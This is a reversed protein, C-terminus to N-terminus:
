MHTILYLFTYKVARIEERESAEKCILQEHFLYDRYKETNYSINKIISNNTVVYVLNLMIGTTIEYNIRMIWFLVNSWKQAVFGYVTDSNLVTTLKETYVDM